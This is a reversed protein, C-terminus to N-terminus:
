KLLNKTKSVKRELEEYGFNCPHFFYKIEDMTFIELLEELSYWTGVKINGKPVAAHVYTLYKVV